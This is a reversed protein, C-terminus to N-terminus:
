EFLRLDQREVGQVHIRKKWEDKWFDVIEEHLITQSDLKFGNIKALVFINDAARGINEIIEIHERPYEQMLSGILTRKVKSTVSLAQILNERREESYGVLDKIIPIKSAIKEYRSLKYKFFGDLEDRLVRETMAMNFFKIDSDLVLGLKQVLNNNNVIKQGIGNAWLTEKMVRPPYSPAEDEIDEKTNQPIAREHSVIQHLYVRQLQLIDITCFILKM